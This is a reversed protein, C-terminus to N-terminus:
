VHVAGHHIVAPAVGAFEPDDYLAFLIDPAVIADIDIRLFTQEQEESAEHLPEEIAAVRQHQEVCWAVNSSKAKGVICRACRRYNLRVDEM